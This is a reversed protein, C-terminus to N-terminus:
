LHSPEACFITCNNFLNSFITTSKQDVSHVCCRPSESGMSTSFYTRVNSKLPFCGTQFDIVVTLPYNNLLIHTVTDEIGYVLWHSGYKLEYTFYIPVKAM